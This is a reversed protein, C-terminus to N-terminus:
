PDVEHRLSASAVITSHGTRPQGILGRIVLFTLRAMVTNATDARALYGMM